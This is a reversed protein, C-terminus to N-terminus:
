SPAPLKNMSKTHHPQLALGAVASSGYSASQMGEFCAPGSCFSVLVGFVSLDLVQRNCGFNTM